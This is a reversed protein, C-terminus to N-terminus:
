LGCCSTEAGSIAHCSRIRQEGMVGYNPVTSALAM